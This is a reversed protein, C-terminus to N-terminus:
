ILAELESLDTVVHLRELAAASILGQRRLDELLDLLSKWCNDVDYLIIDKNELGITDAALVTFIEDLTGIGGPLAIFIESERMMIAKRDNLDACRFSVDIQQSEAGRQVVIDPVVGYVRGGNEKVATALVEMLGRRSGGYILTRGTRGILAGVARVAEHYSEPLTSRSSLFVGIKDM